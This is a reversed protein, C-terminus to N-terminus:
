GPHAADFFIFAAERWWGARGVLSGSSAFSKSLEAPPERRIEDYRNLSEPGLLWLIESPVDGAAHKWDPREFLVAGIALTDRFDDRDREGLAILRGGDDDGTLPSSGDPRTVWMLYDLALSLRQGVREDSHEDLDDALARSLILFHTYFDATYRHYYSSQEFYVGDSQIQSALQE